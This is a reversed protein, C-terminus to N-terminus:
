GSDDFAAPPPPPPPPPPLPLPPPPPPPPRLPPPPPPPPPAVAQPSVRPSTARRAAATRRARARTRRAAVARERAAARRRLEARKRRESVARERSRKEHEQAERCANDLAAPDAGELTEGSGCTASPPLDEALPYNLQEPAEALLRDNAAANGGAPRDAVVIGALKVTAVLVVLVAAVALLLMAVSEPRSRLERLEGAVKSVFRQGEM